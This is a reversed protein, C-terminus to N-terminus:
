VLFMLYYVAVVIFQLHTNITFIAASGTRKEIYYPPPTTSSKILASAQKALYVARLLINYLEQWYVSSLCHYPYLAVLINCGLSM